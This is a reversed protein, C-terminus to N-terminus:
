GLKSIAEQLRVTVVQQKDTECDDIEEDWFGIRAVVQHTAENQLLLQWLHGEPGTYHKPDLQSPDVYEWLEWKHARIDPHGADKALREALEVIFDKNQKQAM